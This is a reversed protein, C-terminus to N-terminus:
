DPGIAQGLKCQAKVPIRGKNGMDIILPILGYFPQNLMHDVHGFFLSFLDPDASLCRTIEGPKGLKQNFAAYIGYMLRTCSVTVLVHSVIAFLSSSNPIDATLLGVFKVEPWSGECDLQRTTHCMHSENSLNSPM